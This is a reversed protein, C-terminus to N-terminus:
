KVDRLRLSIILGIMLIAGLIFFLYSFDPIFQLAITAIIPGIIFSLPGTNRFFEIEDAEEEKVKKFFYSESM